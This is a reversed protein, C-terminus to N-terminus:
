KGLGKNDQVKNINKEFELYKEYIKEATNEITLHSNDIVFDFKSPDTNDFGYIEFYRANELNWRELLNKKAQETSIHVNDDIGRNSGLLRKAQEDENVDIFVKFSDPIFHWATRSDFIINDGKRANGIEVIKDDVMKDISTDKLRNLELIDVGREMAIERFMQGCGVKEFGYKEVLYNIVASKGSCPKGTITIIM